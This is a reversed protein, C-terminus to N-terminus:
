RGKDVNAVGTADGVRQQSLLFTIIGKKFLGRDYTLPCVEVPLERWITITHPIFPRSFRHKTSRSLKLIPTLMRDIAHPATTSHSTLTMDFVKFTVM